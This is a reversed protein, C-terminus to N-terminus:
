LCDTTQVIPSDIPVSQRRGNYWLMQVFDRMSPVESLTLTTLQIADQSRM